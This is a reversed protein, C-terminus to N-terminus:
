RGLSRKASGFCLTDWHGSEMSLVSPLDHLCAIWIHKSLDIKQCFILKIEIQLRLVQLCGVKPTITANELSLRLETCGYVFVVGRDSDQQLNRAITRTSINM